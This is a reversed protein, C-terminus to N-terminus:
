NKYLMGFLITILNDFSLAWFLFSTWLIFHFQFEASLPSLICSHISASMCSAMSLNYLWLTVGPHCPDMYNGEVLVEPFIDLINVMLMTSFPDQFDQFLICVHRFHLWTMSQSMESAIKLKFYPIPNGKPTLSLFSGKSSATVFLLFATLGSLFIVPLHNNCHNM